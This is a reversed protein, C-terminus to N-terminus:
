FHLDDILVPSKDGKKAFLTCLLYPEFDIFENLIMAGLNSSWIPVVVEDPQM